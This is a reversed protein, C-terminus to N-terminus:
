ATATFDFAPIPLNPQAARLADIQDADAKRAKLEDLYADLTDLVRVQYELTRMAQGREVRYLAFHVGVTLGNTCCLRM